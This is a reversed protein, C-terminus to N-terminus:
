FLRFTGVSWVFVNLPMIILAAYMFTEKFKGQKIAGGIFGVVTSFLFVMLYLGILAGVLEFFAANPRAVMYAVVFYVSCVSFVALTASQMRNM